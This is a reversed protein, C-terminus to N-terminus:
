RENRKERTLRRGVRFNGMSAVTARIEDASLPQHGAYKALWARFLDNLTLRNWSLAGAPANM